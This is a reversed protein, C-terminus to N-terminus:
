RKWGTVFNGGNIRRIPRPKPTAKRACNQAGTDLRVTANYSHAFVMFASTVVEGPVTWLMAHFVTQVSLELAASTVAAVTAADLKLVAVRECFIEREALLADVLAPDAAEDRTADNSVPKRQSRQHEAREQQEQDTREFWQRDAVDQDVKGDATLTIRRSAVARQVAALSGGPLGRSRRSRAYARLSLTTM